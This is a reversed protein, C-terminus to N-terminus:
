TDRRGPVRALRAVEVPGIGTQITRAPGHGRVVRARGDSLKLTAGVPEDHPNQPVLKGRVALNLITQRLQKSLRSRLTMPLLRHEPGVAFITGFKNRIQNLKHNSNSDRFLSIELV